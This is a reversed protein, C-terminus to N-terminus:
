EKFRDEVNSLSSFNSPLSVFFSRIILMTQQNNARQIISKGKCPSKASHKNGLASGQALLKQGKLANPSSNIISEGM